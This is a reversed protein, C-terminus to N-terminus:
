ETAAREVRSVGPDRLLTKAKALMNERSWRHAQEAQQIQLIFAWHLGPKLVPLSSFYSQKNESRSASLLDFCKAPSIGAQVASNWNETCCTMWGQKVLPLPSESSFAEPEDPSENEECIKMHSWIRSPRKNGVHSQILVNTLQQITHRCGNQAHGRQSQLGWV